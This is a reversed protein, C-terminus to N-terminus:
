LIRLSLLKVRRKDAQLVKFRCNGIVVQEGRKPMHGLKHTVVGAVTDFDTTGLDINLVETFDECSTLGNIQYRKPGTERINLEEDVDFEDEIDGVIQELIDEITILGSIGGYEDAVIAMHKHGIRFEKLLINLRKSEPIMLAPRLLAEIPQNGLNLKLLDKALLIGKIEDRSEGIVPFRSHGSEMVIPLFDEPKADTEIVIMQSRPIMIDRAQMDSVQMVGDIMTLAEEGIVNYERAELLAQELHPKTKVQPHFVRKLRAFFGPKVKKM